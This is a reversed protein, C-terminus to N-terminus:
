HPPPFYAPGQWRSVHGSTCSVVLKIGKDYWHRTRRSIRVFLGYIAGADARVPPVLRYATWGHNARHLAAVVRAIKKQGSVGNRGPRYAGVHDAGLYPNFTGRRDFFAAFRAGEGRNFATLAESVLQVV